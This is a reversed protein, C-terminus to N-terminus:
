DGGTRIGEPIHVAGLEAALEAASERGGVMVFLLDDGQAKSRALEYCTRTWDEGDVDRHRTAFARWGDPVGLLALDLVADAVNLDVIIRIGEEQWLRAIWRKRYISGLVQARPTPDDTSINPEVAVACNSRIVPSPDTWLANFKYDDTYFHYTGTMERNRPIVGWKTVPRVIYEACRDLRLVPVGWENDSPFIAEPIDQLGM